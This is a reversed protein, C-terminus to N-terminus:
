DNKRRGSSLVIKIPNKIQHIMTKFKTLLSAYCCVISNNYFKCQYIIGDHEQLSEITEIYKEENKLLYQKITNRIAANTYLDSVPINNYIHIVNYKYNSHRVIEEYHKALVPHTISWEYDPENDIANKTLVQSQIALLVQETTMLNTWTDVDGWTGLISLCVQGDEYLNPNHRIGSVSLFTCKPHEMPYNKPYEFKILYFGGYYPTNKTGIILGYGEYINSESPFFYIGNSGNNAKMTKIDRKIYQM